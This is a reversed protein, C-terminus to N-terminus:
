ERGDTQRQRMSARSLCLGSRDQLLLRRRLRLLGTVLIAAAGFVRFDAAIPLRLVGVTGVGSADVGVPTIFGDAAVPARVRFTLITLAHDPFTHLPKGERCVCPTQASIM